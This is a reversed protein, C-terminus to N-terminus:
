DKEGCCESLCKGLLNFGMYFMSNRGIYSMLKWGSLKCFASMLFIVFCSAGGVGVLTIKHIINMRNMIENKKVLFGIYMFIMGVFAIDFHWPLQSIDMKALCAIVTLGALLM